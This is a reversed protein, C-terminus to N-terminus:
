KQEAALFVGIDRLHDLCAAFDAEDKVAERNREVLERLLPPAKKKRELDLVQPMLKKLAGEQAEYPKRRAEKLTRLMRNFATASVGGAALAKGIEEAQDVLNPTLYRNKGEGKYYGGALYDALPSSPAETPEATATAEPTTTSGDETPPSSGPTKIKKSDM